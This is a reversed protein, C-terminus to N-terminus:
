VQRPCRFGAAESENVSIPFMISHVDVSVVVREHRDRGIYNRGVYAIVTNRYVVQRLQYRAHV